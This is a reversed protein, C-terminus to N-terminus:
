PFTYQFTYQEELTVALLKAYHSGWLRGAEMYRFSGLTIDEGSANKM